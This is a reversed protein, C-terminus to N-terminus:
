DVDDLLRKSLVSKPFIKNMAKLAVTESVTTGKALSAVFDSRDLSM